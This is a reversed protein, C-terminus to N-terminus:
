PHGTQVGRAQARDWDDLADEDHYKRGNIKIPKPFNLRDDGEWRALTRSCVNGYRKRVERTPLKRGSRGQETM